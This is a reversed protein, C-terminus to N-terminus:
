YIIIPAEARSIARPPQSAALPLRQGIERAGILCRPTLSWALSQHDTGLTPSLQAAVALGNEVAPPPFHRM